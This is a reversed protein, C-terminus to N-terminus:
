ESVQLTLLFLCGQGYEERVNYWQSPLSGSEQGPSVVAEKPLVMAPFDRTLVTSGGVRTGGAGGIGAGGAGAAEEEEEEESKGKENVIEEEPTAVAAAMNDGKAEGAMSADLEVVSAADGGAPGAAEAPSELPLSDPPVAAGGDDLNRSM